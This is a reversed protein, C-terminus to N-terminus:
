TTNDDVTHWKKWQSYAVNNQHARKDRQKPNNSIRTRTSWNIYSKLANNINTTTNPSELVIAVLSDFFEPLTLGRRNESEILSLISEDSNTITQYADEIETYIWPNEKSKNLITNLIHGQAKNMTGRWKTAIHLAQAIAAPNHDLQELIQDANNRFNLSNTTTGLQQKSVQWYHDISYLRYLANDKWIFYYWPIGPKIYADIWDAKQLKNSTILKDINGTNEKLDDLTKEDALIIRSEITRLIEVVEPTLSNLWQLLISGNELKVLERATKVDLEKLWNLRLNENVKSVLDKAQEPTISSRKNPDISFRETRDKAMEAKYQEVTLPDTETSDLEWNELKKRLDALITTKEDWEGIETFLVGFTESAAYWDVAIDKNYKTNIYKQLSAVGSKTVSGYMGDAIRDKNTLNESHVMNLEYVLKQITRIYSINIIVESRSKDTLEEKIKDDDTLPKPLDSITPLIQMRETKVEQTTERLDEITTAFLDAIEEAEDDSVNDINAKKIMNKIEDKNMDALNKATHDDQKFNLKDDIKEFIPDLATAEITLKKSDEIDTNEKNEKIKTNIKSQFTQKDIGM